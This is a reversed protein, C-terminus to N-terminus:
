ATSQEPAVCEDPLLALHRDWPGRFVRVVLLARCRRFKGSGHPRNSMLGTATATQRCPSTRSPGVSRTTVWHPRAVRGVDSRHSRRRARSVQFLRCGSWNGMPPPVQAPEAQLRPSDRPAAHVLFRWEKAATLQTLGVGLVRRETRSAPADMEGAATYESVSVSGPQVHNLAVSVAAAGRGDGHVLSVYPAHKPEEDTGRGHRDSVQGPPLLRELTAIPPRGRSPGRLCRPLGPAVHRVIGGVGLAVAQDGVWVGCCADSAGCVV